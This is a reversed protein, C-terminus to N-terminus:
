ALLKLVHRVSIIKLEKMFLGLIHKLPITYVLLKVVINYTVFSKALSYVKFSVDARNMFSYFIVFTLFTTFSKSSIFSKFYVDIRDM